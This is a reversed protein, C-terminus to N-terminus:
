ASQLLLLFDSPQSTFKVLLALLQPAQPCAQEFLLKAVGVHAAPAHLPVQLVPNPSQLLLLSVSPQSTLKFVFAALQPLQPATHEFEFMALGVQPLPVQLPVQLVPYPSQLLLLSVSPQSTLTFLLAALQPLQPATHEVFLMAVGVHLAPLQLPM